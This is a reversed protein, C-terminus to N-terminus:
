AGEKPLPLEVVFRTNPSESDFWLSGGHAEATERSISLGLGTGRGSPKTTFFNQFLGDRAERSIVGGDTVSILLSAEKKEDALTIWRGEEPLDEIADAANNLLNLFVQSLAVPRCAIEQSGFRMENRFRIGEKKMRDQALDLASEVVNGIASPALADGTDQGSIFKLSRVIVSLRRSIKRIRGIRGIMDEKEVGGRQLLSELHFLQLDLAALPSNIEHAVNGVVVGFAALRREEFLRNRQEEILQSAREFSNSLALLCAAFLTLYGAQNAIRDEGSYPYPFSPLLAGRQNVLFWYAAVSLFLFIFSYRREERHFLSFGLIGIPLMFHEIEIVPGQILGSLLMGLYVLGLFLVRGMLYRRRYNFYFGVFIAVFYLGNLALMVQYGKLFNIPAIALNVLAGVLCIHNSFVIRDILAPPTSDDIGLQVIKKYIFGFASAL